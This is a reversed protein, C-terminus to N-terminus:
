IESILKLPSHSPRIKVWNNRNKHANATIMVNYIFDIAM